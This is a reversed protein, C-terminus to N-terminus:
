DSTGSPANASGLDVCDLLDFVHISHYVFLRNFGMQWGYKQLTDAYQQTIQLQEFGFGFSHIGYMM